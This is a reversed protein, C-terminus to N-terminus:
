AARKLRESLYKEAVARIDDFCCDAPLHGAAGLDHSLSLMPSDAESGHVIVPLDTHGAAQVWKLVQWGDMGPMMLDVVVLDVRRKSLLDIAAAGSSVYTAVHGMRLLASALSKCVDGQHDVLLVHSMFGAM